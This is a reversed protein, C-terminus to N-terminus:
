MNENKKEKTMSKYYEILTFISNGEFIYIWLEQQEDEDKTLSNIVRVTYGYIRNVIM